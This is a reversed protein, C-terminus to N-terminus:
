HRQEAVTFWDEYQMALLDLDPLGILNRVEQHFGEILV